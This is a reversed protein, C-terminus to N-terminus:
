SLGPLWTVLLIVPVLLGAVVQWIGTRGIRGTLWYLLPGIALGALFGWLHAMIDIAQGTADRTESGLLGLLALGAGLPLLIERMGSRKVGSVVRIMVLAGLAGFIATSAGISMTLPEASRLAANILNGTAGTLLFAWWTLGAGLLPLLAYAFLIGFVTNTILHLLDGHLTLATIVRWWEGRGVVAEHSAAGLEIWHRPDSAEVLFFASLVWVYVFLTLPSSRETPPPEPRREREESEFAALEPAIRDFDAADFYLVFEGDEEFLWYASGLALAVLAREAATNLDPYRGAEILEIERSM